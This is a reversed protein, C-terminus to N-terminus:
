MSAKLKAQMLTQAVIGIRLEMAAVEKKLDALATQLRRLPSLDGMANSKGTLESKIQEYADIKSQLENTLEQVAKNM